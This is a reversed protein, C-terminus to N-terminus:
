PNPISRTMVSINVSSMMISGMKLVAFRSSMARRLGVPFIFNNLNDRAQSDVEPALNKSHSFTSRNLPDYIVIQVKRFKSFEECVVMKLNRKGQPMLRRALAESPIQLERKQYISVVIM